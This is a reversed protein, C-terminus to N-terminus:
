LEAGPGPDFPAEQQTLGGARAAMTEVRNISIQAGTQGYIVITADRGYARRLRHFEAAIVSPSQSTLTMADSSLNTRCEITLPRHAKPQATVKRTKPEFYPRRPQDTTM